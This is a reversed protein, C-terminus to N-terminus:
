LVSTNDPYFLYLVPESYSWSFAVIVLGLKGIIHLSLPVLVSSSTPLIIIILNTYLLM